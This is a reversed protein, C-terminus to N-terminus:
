AWWAPLLNRIQPQLFRDDILWIVGRDEPTRIVRGAAQAVKQLGPIQYTYDYGAGEPGNISIDVRGRDEEPLLQVALGDTAIDQTAALLNTGFVGVMLLPISSIHCEKYRKHHVKM